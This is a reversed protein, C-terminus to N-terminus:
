NARHLPIWGANRLKQNQVRKSRRSRVSKEGWVGGPTGRALPDDECANFIEGSRRLAVGVARAADEVHIVNLWREPGTTNTRLERGPGYLGASRLVSGGARLTAKEATVMAQARPDDQATPAVENVWRGESEAYVSTSSLYVFPVTNKKAWEAALLVGQRHMVDFNGEDVKRSPSM